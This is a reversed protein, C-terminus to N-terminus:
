GMAPMANPDQGLANMPPSQMAGSQPDDGGAKLVEERWWMPDQLGMQVLQAVPGMLYALRQEQERTKEATRMEDDAITIKSPEEMWASFAMNANEPDNILVNHGFVDVTTPCTDYLKACKLWKSMVRQQYQANKYQSWAASTASKAAMISAEEATMEQNPKSGQDYESIGSDQRFVQELNQMQAFDSQSLEGGPVWVMPPKGDMFGAKARIPTAIEGQNYNRLDREDLQSTDVVHVGEKKSIRRFKRELDNIAEQTSQQAFVRGVPHAWGPMVVHDYFAIPIEDELYNEDRYVPKADKHGLRREMTPMGTGCGDIDFYEFLPVVPLKVEGQTDIIYTEADKRAKAGFQAEADEISMLTMVMACRARSPNRAHRDWIVQVSPVDRLVSKQYSAGDVLDDEAGILTAGYGLSDGNAFTMEMESFFEGQEARKAWMQKRVEATYKDVQPSDPAVQTTYNRILHTMSAAAIRRSVGVQLRDVVLNPYIPWGGCLSKSVAGGKAPDGFAYCMWRYVQDLHKFDFLSEMRRTVLEYTAIAM